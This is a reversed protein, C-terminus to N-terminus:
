NAPAPQTSKSSASEPAASLWDTVAAEPIREVEFVAAILENHEGARAPNLYEWVIDKAPTVEIARGRTSETILTNGNPLRLASGLGFSYFSDPPTGSYLWVIEFTVPDFELVRSFGNNGQNDFLLIHGPDIVVPEHQMAWPGAAAWVVTKQEPDIVALTHLNRSSVLLNGARFAPARDALRADLVKIANTHFLDLQQPARRVMAAFPSNLFSDLISIQRITKGDPDMVVIQDDLIFGQEGLGPAERPVLALTYIRGADDVTIDHHAALPRAWVVNSDRDLKV